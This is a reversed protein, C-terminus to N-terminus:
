TSWGLKSRLTYHYDYDLPHLLRLMKKKRTIQVYDNPACEFHIQGDCSLRAPFRNDTTFHLTITAHSDVVIPRTSLVAPHMPVLVIASLNPSLIPGGGALAYATSGTPTATILGDSRQRYVFSNDIFVQFDIMKAIDGSYLVVDNLATSQHVVQNDRIHTMDLLFRLEEQYHGKLLPDLSQTLAQPSIDTLFGRKGRNVGVLPIDYDILARAAHLFSGDGGVVIACDCLQGLKDETTTQISARPIWPAWHATMVVQIGSAELFDVLSALTSQVEPNTHKGILAITSFSVCLPPPHYFVTGVM